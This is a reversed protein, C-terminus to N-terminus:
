LPSDERCVGEGGTGAGRRDSFVEFAGTGERAGSVIETQGDDIKEGTEECYKRLTYRALGKGIPDFRCLFIIYVPKLERYGSGRMMM